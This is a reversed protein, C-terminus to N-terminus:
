RSAEVPEVLAGAAGGRAEEAGGGVRVVRSISMKPMEPRFIM